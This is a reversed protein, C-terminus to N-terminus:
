RASGQMGHADWKDYLEQRKRCARDNGFNCDRGYLHDAAMVNRVAPKLCELVKSTDSRHRECFSATQLAENAFADAKSENLTNTGTWPAIRAATEESCGSLVLSLLVVPILFVRM